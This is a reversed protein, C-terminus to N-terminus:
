MPPVSYEPCTVQTTLWVLTGRAQNLTATKFNKITNDKFSHQTLSSRHFLPTHAYVSSSCANHTDAVTGEWGTWMCCDCHGHVFIEPLGVVHPLNLSVWLSYLTATNHRLSLLHFQHCGSLSQKGNSGSNKWICFFLLLTRLFVLLWFVRDGWKKNRSSRWILWGRINFFPMFSFSLYPLRYNM